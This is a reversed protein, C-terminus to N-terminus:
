GLKEFRFAIWMKQILIIRQWHNLMIVFEDLIVCLFHNPIEIWCEHAAIGMKSLQMKEDVVNGFFHRM